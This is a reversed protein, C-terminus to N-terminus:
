KKNFMRITGMPTGDIFLSAFVIGSAAERGTNLVNGNWYAQYAGCTLKLNSMPLGGLSSPASTTVYTSPGQLVPIAILQSLVNRIQITVVHQVRDDACHNTTDGVSFPIFTEPNFPNPFNKGIGGSTGRPKSATSQGAANKPSMACLALVSVLAAWRHFM